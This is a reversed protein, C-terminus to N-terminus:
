GIGVLGAFILRGLWIAWVPYCIALVLSGSYFLIHNQSGRLFGVVTVIYGIGAFIGIWALTVPLASMTLALANILALWVGILGGAPFFKQSTEFDIRNFVLLGQGYASVLMGALGILAAALGLGRLGPSTVPLFFYALPLMLMVQFVSSIDNIKGFPKGVTFFLIGTVFTLITFVASLYAAAGFLNQGFITNM